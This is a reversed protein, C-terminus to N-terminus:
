RVPLMRAVSICCEPDDLETGTVIRLRDTGHWISLDSPITFAEFQMRWCGLFSTHSSWIM